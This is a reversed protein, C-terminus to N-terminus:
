DDFAELTQSPGDDGRGGVIRGRRPDKSPANASRFATMFKKWRYPTGRSVGLQIAIEAVSWNRRELLLIIALNENSKKKGSTPPVPVEDEVRQLHSEIRTKLQRLPERRRDVDQMYHIWTEALQARWELDESNPTLFLEFNEKGTVPNAPLFPRLPEVKKKSDDKLLEFRRDSGDITIGWGSLEDSVRENSIGKEVLFDCFREEEDIRENLWDYLCNAAALADEVRSLLHILLDRKEPLPKEAM